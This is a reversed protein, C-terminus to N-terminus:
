PRAPNPITAGLRGLFLSHMIIIIIIIIIFYYYYYYYYYHIIYRRTKFLELRKVHYKFQVVVFILCCPCLFMSYTSPGLMYYCHKPFYFHLYSYHRPVIPFYCFLVCNSKYYYLFFYFMKSIKTRSISSPHRWSEGLPLCTRSGKFKVLSSQELQQIGPICINASRIVQDNNYSRQTHEPRIIFATTKCTYVCNLTGLSIKSICYAVFYPM